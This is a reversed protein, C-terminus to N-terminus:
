MLVDEDLSLMWAVYVSQYHGHLIQFPDIHAVLAQVVSAMGGPTTLESVSAVKASVDDIVSRVARENEPDYPSGEGAADAGVLQEYSSCFAEFREAFSEDDLGPLEIDVGYRDYGWASLPLYTMMDAPNVINFINNYRADSASASTAAAWSDNPRTSTSTFLAPM